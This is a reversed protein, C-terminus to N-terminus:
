PIFVRDAHWALADADPLQEPDRPAAIKKGDLSYYVKGNAYDREISPSVRFTLDPEVTVLGRDYLRHVDSRMLIGNRVEHKAHDAFPRIHAAELVPLTREGTIACRRSYADMVMLRFAGQGRRAAVLSPEAYGGPTVLLPSQARPAVGPDLVQLSRWVRAGEGTAIDYGAIRVINPKWDAPAAVTESATLVVTDSLVVCGVPENGGVGRRLRGVRQTMEALSSVGNAPGFIEWAISMPMETWYSFFGFGGIRNTGRIKFIWPTGPADRSRTPRPQWFNVEGGGLAGIAGLWDPDTVAFIGRM